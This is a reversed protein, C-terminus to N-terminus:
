KQDSNMRKQFLWKRYQKIYWLHHNGQYGKPASDSLKPKNVKTFTKM